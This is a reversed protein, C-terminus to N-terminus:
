RLLLMNAALSVVIMAVSVMRFTNYTAILEEIQPSYSEGKARSLELPRQKGKGAMMKKYTKPELTMIKRYTGRRMSLVAISVIVGFLIFYGVVMNENGSDMFGRRGWTYTMVGCCITVFYYLLVNGKFRNM